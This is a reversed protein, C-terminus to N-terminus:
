KASATRVSAVAKGTGEKVTNIVDVKADFTETLGSPWRVELSDVKTASGLGFHVRMDNSSSYSSGSRVEDVFTRGGTKATIRAGIGDRNSKTGITKIAIWHNPYSMQNVLLSPAEGMNTIVASIKGNNWLDGIALGRGAAKRTIAPGALNSVDDFTGKGTNHYLIRPEQYDSGLKFKDV